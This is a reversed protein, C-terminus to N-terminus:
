GGAGAASVTAALDCGGHACHWLIVDDLNTGETVTIPRETNERLTLCPVGLITTEEQIGGSDTLVLGADAMLGLFELYGLPEMLWAKSEQEEGSSRTVPLKPSQVLDGLGFERIREQTRPHAPFIVPLRKAIEGLTELIGKLVTPEDVNSPRHLTVVAYKGPELGYQGPVALASAQEKHKLLTDIMVNGVFFIKEEPIGEQRLNENADQCTTFLYDSLADTVVRNIEEPMRRDFSRLGAEVHAVPVWLKAAVIACAMTSNVDGVVVVLDPREGSVVKEFEVMIRATQEAHSGSGVGLYLDPRPIGLEEFFIRSMNVDYHQGTHVLVQQFQEPYKAMEEMIPAIKM